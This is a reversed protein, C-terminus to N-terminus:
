SVSALSTMCCNEELMRRRHSSLVVEFSSISAVWGNADILAVLEARPQHRGQVMATIRAVM